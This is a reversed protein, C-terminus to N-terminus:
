CSPLIEPIVFLHSILRSQSWWCTTTICWAPKTGAQRILRWWRWWSWSPLDVLRFERWFTSFTPICVLMLDVKKQEKCKVTKKESHLLWLLLKVWSAIISIFVNEHHIDPHICIRTYHPLSTTERWEIAKWRKLPQLSHEEPSLIPYSFDWHLMKMFM